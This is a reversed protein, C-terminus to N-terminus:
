ATRDGQPQNEQHWHQHDQQQEDGVDTLNPDGANFKLIGHFGRTQRCHLLPPIVSTPRCPFGSSHADHESGRVRHVIMRNLNLWVKRFVFYVTVGAAFTVRDHPRKAQRSM